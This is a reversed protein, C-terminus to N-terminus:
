RRQTNCIQNDIKSNLRKMDDRILYTGIWISALLLVVIYFDLAKM